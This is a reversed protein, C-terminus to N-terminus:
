NISSIKINKQGFGDSDNWNRDNRRFIQKFLVFLDPNLNDKFKQEIIKMKNAGPQLRFIEFVVKPFSLTQQRSWGVEAEEIPIGVM